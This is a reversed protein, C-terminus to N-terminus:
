PCPPAPRRRYALVTIESPAATLRIAAAGFEESTTAEDYVMSFLMTFASPISGEIWQNEILLGCILFCTSM